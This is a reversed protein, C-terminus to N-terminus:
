LQTVLKRTSPYNLSNASVVVSDEQDLSSSLSPEAFSGMTDTDISSLSSRSKSPMAVVLSKVTDSKVSSDGDRRTSRVKPPESPRAPSVSRINRLDAGADNPANTKTYVTASRVRPSVPKATQALKSTTLVEIADNSNSCKVSTASSQVNPKRSKRISNLYEEAKASAMDIRRPSVASASPKCFESSNTTLTRPIPTTAPRAPSRSPRSPGLSPRVPSVSPRSSGNSGASETQCSEIARVKGADEDTLSGSTYILQTTKPRVSCDLSTPRFSANSKSSDEASSLHKVTILNSSNPKVNVVSTPQQLESTTVVIAAESRFPRGSPEKRTVVNPSISIRTQTTVEPSDMDEVIQNGCKEEGGSWDKVIDDNNKITNESQVTSNTTIFLSDKFQVIKPDNDDKSATVNTSKAKNLENSVFEGTAGWRPPCEPRAPSVSSRKRVVSSNLKNEKQGSPVSKRESDKKKDSNDMEMCNESSSTCIALSDSEACVPNEIQSSDNNIALFERKLISIDTSRVIGDEIALMEPKEIETNSQGLIVKKAAVEDKSLVQVDVVHEFDDFDTQCSVENLTQVAISKTIPDNSNKLISPYSSRLPRSPSFPSDSRRYLDESMSVSKPMNNHVYIDSKDFSKYSSDMENNSLNDKPHKGMKSSKLIQSVVNAFALKKKAESNCQDINNDPNSNTSRKVRNLMKKFSNKAKQKATLKLMMDGSDSTATNMSSYVMREPSFTVRPGSDPRPPAVKSVETRNPSEDKLEAQELSAPVPSMILRSPGRTRTPPVSPLPPPSKAVSQKAIPQFSSDSNMPINLPKESACPVANQNQLSIYESKSIFPVNQVPNVYSKVETKFSSRATNSQPNIDSKSYNITHEEGLRHIEKFEEDEALKVHFDLNSQHPAPEHQDSISSPVNDDSSTQGSNKPSAKIDLPNKTNRVSASRIPFNGRNASPKMKSGSPKMKLGNRSLSPLPPKPPPTNAALIDDSSASASSFPSTIQKQQESVSKGTVVPMVKSKSRKVFALPKQALNLLSGALGGTKKGSEGFGSQNRPLSRHKNESPSNKSYCTVFMNDNPRAM